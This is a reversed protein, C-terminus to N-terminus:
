WWTSFTKSLAKALGSAFLVHYALWLLRSDVTPYRALEIPWGSYCGVCSSNKHSLGQTGQRDSLTRGGADELSGTWLADGQLLPALAPTPTTAQGEQTLKISWDAAWTTRSVGRTRGVEEFSDRQKATTDWANIVLFILINLTIYHFWNQFFFMYSAIFSHCYM